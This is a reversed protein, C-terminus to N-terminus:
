DQSGANSQILFKILKESYALQGQAQHTLEILERMDEESFNGDPNDRIIAEARDQARNLDRLANMYADIVMYQYAYLDRSHDPMLSLVASQTATQWAVNSLAYIEWDYNLKGALSSKDGEVHHRLLRADESLSADMKANLGRNMELNHFNQDRELNLAARVEALQHRHHAWEVTQELGIAILLGVVITAIHIFFDTWSHTAKHPPHVDIMRLEQAKSHSTPPSKEPTYGVRDLISKAATKKDISGKASM